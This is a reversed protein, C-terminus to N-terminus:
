LLHSFCSYFRELFTSSKPTFSTPCRITQINSDKESASIFNVLPLFNNSTFHFQQLQKLYFNCGFFFYCFHCINRYKEKACCYCVVASLVLHMLIGRSYMIRYARSSYQIWMIQWLMGTHLISYINSLTIEHDTVSTLCHCVHM